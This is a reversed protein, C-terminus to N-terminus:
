SAKFGTVDGAKNTKLVLDGRKVAARLKNGSNMRRAGENLGEYRAAHTGKELPTFEDALACVEDASKGELFHAVDDGTSYSKNGSASVSVEYNEKAKRLKESMTKPSPEGDEEVLEHAVDMIAEIRSKQDANFRSKTNLFEIAERAENISDDTPNSIASEITEIANNITMTM